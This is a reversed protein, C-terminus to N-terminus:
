YGCAESVGANCAKKFARTSQQTQGAATFAKGLYYWGRSYDPNDRVGVRLLRIVEASQGAKLACEAFKTYSGTDFPSSAIAKKFVSCDEVPAPQPIPPPQAAPAPAPAPKAVPAPQPIPPPQAAPAPAPQAAPAPKAAPAPALGQFEQIRAKARNVWEKQSEREEKRVYISYAKIALDRRNLAEFCLALGFYPDPDSKNRKAYAKYFRVALRCRGMKRLGVALNYIADPRDRDYKLVRKSWSVVQRHEGRARLIDMYRQFVDRRDLDAELAAKCTNVDDNSIKTSVPMDLCKTAVGACGSLMVM